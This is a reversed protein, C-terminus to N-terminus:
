MMETGIHSTAQFVQQSRHVIPVLPSLIKPLDM